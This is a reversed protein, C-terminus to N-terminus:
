GAAIRVSVPEPLQCTECNDGPGGRDVVLFDSIEGVAILPHHWIGAHYNVGQDGRAYFARLATPDAAGAVVVLYPRRDLPMFAQSGLPHRELIRAVVPPAYPQGRFISILPRAGDGLCQVRALDHFRETTGDNIPFHEAGEVTIVDGFPAFVERTLPEAEIERMSM